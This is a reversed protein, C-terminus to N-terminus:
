KHRQGHSFFKNVSLGATNLFRAIEELNGEWHPDHYPMIGLLSVLRPNKVALSPPEVINDILARVVIEYGLASGGLFGSSNVAYIKHGPARHKKQSV